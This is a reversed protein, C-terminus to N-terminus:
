RSENRQKMRSISGTTMIVALNKSVKDFDEQDILSQKRVIRASPDAGSERPPPRM